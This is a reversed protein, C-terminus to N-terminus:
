TVDSVSYEEGDESYKVKELFSTVNEVVFGQFRGTVEGGLIPISAMVGEPTTVNAPFTLQLGISLFSEAVPPNYVGASVTSVGALALLFSQAFM